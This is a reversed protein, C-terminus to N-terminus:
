EQLAKKLDGVSLDIDAKRASMRQTLETIQNNLADRQQRLLERAKEADEIDDLAKQLEKTSEQVKKLNPM